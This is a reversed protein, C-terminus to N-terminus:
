DHIRAMAVADLFRTGSRVFDRQVGEREFGFREYLRIAPENDAWVLLSLRRLGWHSDALDIVAALLGTAVGRSQMDAHTAILNLVAAHRARPNDFQTLVEAFGVVEDGSVAVLQVRDPKPELRQKTAALRAHPLRMTGEVVHASTLIEHLAVVDDIEAPRIDIDSM